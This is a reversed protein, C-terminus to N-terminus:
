DRILPQDTCEEVMSALVYFFLGRDEKGLKKYTDSKYKRRSKLNPNFFYKKLLYDAIARIEKNDDNPGEGYEKSHYVYCCAKDNKTVLNFVMPENLIQDEFKLLRFCYKGTPRDYAFPMKGYDRKSAKDCFSDVSAEDDIENCNVCNLFPCKRAIYLRFYEESKEAECKRNEFYEKVLDPMPFAMTTSYSFLASSVLTGALLRILKM